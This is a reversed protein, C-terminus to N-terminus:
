KGGGTSPGFKIRELMEAMSKVRDPYADAANSAESPDTQLDYLEYRQGAGRRSSKKKSGNSPGSAGNVILKWSGDRIAFQGSASHHIIPGRETKGGTLAAFFSASDEGADAPLEVGLMEALTALFDTQCVAADCTTGAAIKEPWRILLPVRHGGEYRSRKGDRYVGNSRHGYVEIRDKWTNEPGNDSSFIVMTDKTVGLEDLSELVQGVRYDTEIMFDGYAGCKSKGKFQDMPIVPKHPSTYPLYVFFPKDKKAAGQMWEIAKETFVQLVEQDVFNPAVELNNSGRQEDYPPAIRYSASDHVVLGPKKKTWLTPPITVRDQDLYTLVGYNMSAPIGFFRDFGKEIPGDTFPKSWDRREGATGVFQMGLHWKGIMATQYGHDRLLSALTMRGNEILCDADAGMVGRKLKTRWSYRGTLLGYRSPTCVTDSCHGDTFTMGENILRDLNPTRFKAEPNLASVDGYGQDDTYILVINPKEGAQVAAAYWTLLLVFLCASATIRRNTNM